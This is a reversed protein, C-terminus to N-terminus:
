AILLPDRGWPRLRLAEVPTILPEAVVSPSTEKLTVAVSESPAASASDTEWDKAKWTTEAGATTDKVAASVVAMGDAPRAPSNISKVTVTESATLTM